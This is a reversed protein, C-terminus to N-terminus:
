NSTDESTLETFTQNEPTFEKILIQLTWQLDRLFSSVKSSSRSGPFVLCFRNIHLGVSESVKYSQSYLGTPPTEKKKGAPILCNVCQLYTMSQLYKFILDCATHLRKMDHTKPQTHKSNIFHDLQLRSPMSCLSHFHSFFCRKNLGKVTRILFIVSEVFFSSCRTIGNM